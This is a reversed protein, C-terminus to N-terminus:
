GVEALEFGQVAWGLDHVFNEPYTESTCLTILDLLLNRVADVESLKSGENYADLARKARGIQRAVCMQCHVSQDINEFDEASLKLDPM